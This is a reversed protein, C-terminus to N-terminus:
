PRPMGPVVQGMQRLLTIPNGVVQISCMGREAEPVSHQGFTETLHDVASKWGFENSKNLGFIEINYERISGSSVLGGKDPYDLVGPSSRDVKIMPGVGQEGLVCSMKFEDLQKQGIKCSMASTENAPSVFYGIDDERIRAEVGGRMSKGMVELMTNRLMKLALDQIKIRSATDIPLHERDHQGWHM